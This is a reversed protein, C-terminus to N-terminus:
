RKIRGNECFPAKQTRCFELARANGMRENRLPNYAFAGIRCNKAASAEEIADMREFFRFISPVNTNLGDLRNVPGTANLRELQAKARGLETCTLQLYTSLGEYPPTAESQASASNATIGFLIAFTAILTRVAMLTEDTILM